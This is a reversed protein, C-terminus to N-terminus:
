NVLKCTYGLNALKDSIMAVIEESPKTSVEDGLLKSVFEGPVYNVTTFINNGSTVPMTTSDVYDKYDGSLNEAMGIIMKPAVGNAEVGNSYFFTYKTNVTIPKKGILNITLDATYMPIRAKTDANARISCGLTREAINQSVYNYAMFGAVGLVVVVVLAIIIAGFKFPRRPPNEIKTIDVERGTSSIQKDVKVFKMEGVDNDQITSPKPADDPQSEEPRLESGLNPESKSESKPDFEPESEPDSGPQVEPQSQSAEKVVENTVYSEIPPEPKNQIVPQFTNSPRLEIGPRGYPSQPSTHANVKSVGDLQTDLLQSIEELTPTAMQPVPPSTTAQFTASSAPQPIHQPIPAPSPPPPQQTPQPQLVPVVLPSSVPANPSASNVPPVPPMSQQVLNAIHESTVPPTPQTPQPVPQPTSSVTVAPQPSPSSSNNKDM